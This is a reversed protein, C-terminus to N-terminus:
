ILKNEMAYRTLDANTKANLKQLIRARYTSVTTPSLSLTDAIDAVPMGAALMKLVEFERDSLNEHPLRDAGQDLSDALKEALSPTIYKKGLLIRHVAKVLEEPASDKNLYGSAGTRMVRIAYQDEPHVSLVLVPLKPYHQRILQLVDLGSRGPMSIDTIVVDWENKLVQNFLEDADAVEVIHAALFEDLLIQRLGRRVVTHDDAILIRLM